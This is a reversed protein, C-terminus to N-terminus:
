GRPSTVMAVGGEAFRVGVLGDVLACQGPEVTLGECDLSQELPLVLCRGDHAELTQADPLGVVRDLRFFPGDVLCQSEEGVSTRLAPDHTGCDAVSLAEELHLERPRGYDYFRYTVGGDQQMELLTCGAGIAHVTGTALYVFDGPKVPHWVLMQEISGDLAGARLEDKSYERDFGVALKADPECELVLWCEDKGPPHVQVSLNESTFLYKGLLEPLEPPPTFWLEGIRQGAPAVFPAPLVDRGWVKEVTTTELIRPIM